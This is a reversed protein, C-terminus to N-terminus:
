LTTTSFSSTIISTHAPRQAPLGIGAGGLMGVGAAAIAAGGARLAVRSGIRGAGFGLAIGALHLLATALMFGLAYEFGSAAAPMEAGHAYGHFMAFFGVLGMAAVTPLGVRLAVALGLVVVSAAIGLEVFPLGVGTMGLAGGAAMLAIFAAPVLWLAWPWALRRVAGVAVMALVHDLGGFPHAFGHTLGHADGIGTHAFAAAPMLAAAVRLIGSKLKM